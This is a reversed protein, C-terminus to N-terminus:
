KVVRPKLRDPNPKSPNKQKKVRPKKKQKVAKPKLGGSNPKSKNKKAKKVLPKEKM